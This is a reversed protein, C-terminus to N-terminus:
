RANADSIQKMLGAVTTEKERFSITKGNSQIVAKLFPCRENDPIPLVFGSAGGVAELAFGNLLALDRFQGEIYAPLSQGGRAQAITVDEWNKMEAASRYVTRRWCAERTKPSSIVSPIVPSLMRQTRLCLARAFSYYSQWAGLFCKDPSRRDLLRKQPSLLTM